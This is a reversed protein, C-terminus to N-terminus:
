CRLGFKAEHGGTACANAQRIEMRGSQIANLRVGKSLLAAFRACKLMLM